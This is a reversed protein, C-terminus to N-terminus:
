YRGADRQHYKKGVRGLQSRIGLPLRRAFHPIRRGGWRSVVDSASSLERLMNGVNRLVTDGARHGYRDNVQKFHDLDLLIATTRGRRDFAVGNSKLTVSEVARRNSLGTLPDTAASHELEEIRREVKRRDLQKTVAVHLVREICQRLKAPVVAECKNIFDVSGSRISQIVVDQRDSASLVIIPCEPRRALIEPILEPAKFDGLNYDMLCFDFNGSIARLSEAGTAAMCIDTDPMVQQLSWGIIKRHAPDDDVILVKSIPKM